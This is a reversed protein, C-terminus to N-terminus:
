SEQEKANHNVVSCGDAGLRLLLDDLQRETPEERYWRSVLAWHPVTQQVRVEWAGTLNTPPKRLPAM